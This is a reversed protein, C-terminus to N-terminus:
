CRGDIAKMVNTLTRVDVGNNVEVSVRGIRIMIDAKEGNSIEESQVEIWETSTNEKKFREKKDPRNEKKKALEYLRYRFQGYGINNQECWKKQTLGSSRYDSLRKEWLEQLDNTKM